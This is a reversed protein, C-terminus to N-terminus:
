PWGHPRQILVIGELRTHDATCVRSFVTVEWDKFRDTALLEATLSPSPEAGDRDTHLQVAGGKHLWHLYGSSSPAPLQHGCHSHGVLFIYIGQRKGEKRDKGGKKM